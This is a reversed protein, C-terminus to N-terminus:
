KANEDREGASPATQGTGDQPAEYVARELRELRSDIRKLTESIERLLIESREGGSLFARPAPQERVEALADPVSPASFAVVAAVLAALVLWGTWASRPKRFAPQNDM